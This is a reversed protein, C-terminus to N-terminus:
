GQMESFTMQCYHEDLSSNSCFNVILQILHCLNFSFIKDKAFAIVTNGKITESFSEVNM